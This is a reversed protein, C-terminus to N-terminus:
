EVRRIKADETTTGPRDGADVDAQDVWKCVDGGLLRATSRYTQMAWHREGTEERMQRVLRIAQEKQALANRRSTPATVRQDSM